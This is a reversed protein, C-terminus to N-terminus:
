EPAQMGRPWHDADDAGEADENPKRELEEEPDDSVEGTHPDVKDPFSFLQYALFGYQAASMDVLRGAFDTNRELEKALRAEDVGKLAAFRVLADVAEAGAPQPAPASAGTAKPDVSQLIMGRVGLVAQIADSAARKNAMKLATNGQDAASQRVQLVTEAPKGGRRPYTKQRRRDEPAAEYEATSSARRWAMRTEATSAEGMGSGLLAGTPQHTVSCTSVYRRDAGGASGDEHEEVFYTLALQFTAALIESGAKELFPGKVGPLTGFHIGPVM